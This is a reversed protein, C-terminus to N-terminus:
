IEKEETYTRAKCNDCIRVRVRGGAVERSNYVKALKMGCKCYFGQRQRIVPPISPVTNIQISIIEKIM